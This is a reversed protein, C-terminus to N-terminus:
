TLPAPPPTHSLYTLVGTDQDKLELLTTNQLYVKQPRTLEEKYTRFMGPGSSWIGFELSSTFSDFYLNEVLPLVTQWEQGHSQSM